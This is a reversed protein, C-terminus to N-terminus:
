FRAAATFGIGGAMRTQITTLGGICSGLAHRFLTAVLRPEATDPETDQLVELTSLAVAVASTDPAASPPLVKEGHTILTKNSWLKRCAEAWDTGNSLSAHVKSAAGYPYRYGSVTGPPVCPGNILAALVRMTTELDQITPDTTM